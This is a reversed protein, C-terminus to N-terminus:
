DDDNGNGNGNGGSNGNGNGEDQQENAATSSPSSGSPSPSEEGEPDEGESPSPSPEETPPPPPVAVFLTVTTGPEVEGPGPEQRIVEDPAVDGNPEEVVVPEYGARVLAAQAAFVNQGVYDELVTSGTSLVIAVVSGPAVQADAGPDTRIVRGEPVDASPEETADGARLGAASLNDRAQSESQGTVDPVGVAAPGSSVTVRVDSGETVEAGAAPDQDIVTGNPSDDAERGAEVFTLGAAGLAERAERDTGDVLDPVAVTVVPAPDNSPGALNWVVLGLLGLAALVALVIGFVALGSRRKPDDEDRDRGRARDVGGAGLGAGSVGAAATRDHPAEAQARTMAATEAATPAQARTPAAGAAGVLGAATLAQTAETSSPLAQTAMVGVPPAGVSRGDVAALLDRRFSAADPYREDRDKALAKLVVRDLADSVARNYRSPPDPVERVHQYAVSVPSDGVFPPRGTLLEYLLCGTSYLDTRADVTEGRAQEPSLYQATGIVASTQTMTASTDALARAIGFDMVKIAGDPTVMVNAPKIDRHIIGQRHSYDLATLVGATIEAARETGMGSGHGDDAATLLEKATQGEVYEMVIYPLRAPAGGPQAFTDEGTDYVAVVSPHNLAASSHAERRFRAQFVPDRALDPRLMKVAVLRGLRSDRSLHVEAMGGRGLVEGVEYRDGLRRPADNEPNM